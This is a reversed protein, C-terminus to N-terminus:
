NPKNPKNGEDKRSVGRFLSKFPLIWAVGLTAYIGLEVLFHPREFIGVLNVAVVVYAPGLACLIFLTWRRRAKLSLKM